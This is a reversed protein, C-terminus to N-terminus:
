VPRRTEEPARMKNKAKTARPPTGTVSTFISDVPRATPIMKSAVM